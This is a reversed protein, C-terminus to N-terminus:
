SLTKFRGKAAKKYGPTATILLETYPIPVDADPFKFIEPIHDAAWTWYDTLLRIDAHLYLNTFANRHANRDPFLVLFPGTFNDVKVTDWKGGHPGVM